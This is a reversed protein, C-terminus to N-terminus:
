MIIPYEKITSSVWKTSVQPLRMGKKKEQIEPSESFVELRLIDLHKKWFSEEEGKKETKLSFFRPLNIQFTNTQIELKPHIYPYHSFSLMFSTSLSRISSFSSFSSLNGPLVLYFPSPFSFCQKASNSLLKLVIM